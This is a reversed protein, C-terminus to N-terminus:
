LHFPFNMLPLLQRLILWLSLIKDQSTSITSFVYCTMIISFEWTKHACVTMTTKQLCQKFTSVHVAPAAINKKKCWAFGICTLLAFNCFWRGFLLSLLYKKLRGGQESSAQYGSAAAVYFCGIISSFVLVSQQCKFAFFGGYSIWLSFLTLCELWFLGITTLTQM